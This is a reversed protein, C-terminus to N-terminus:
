PHGVGPVANNTQRALGPQLQELMPHVQESAPSASRACIETSEVGTWSQRRKPASAKSGQRICKAWRSRAVDEGPTGAPPEAQLLRTRKALALLLEAAAEDRTM